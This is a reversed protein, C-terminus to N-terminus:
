GFNDYGGRTFICSLSKDTTSILSALADLALCDVVGPSTSTTM